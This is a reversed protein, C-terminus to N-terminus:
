ESNFTWSLASATLGADAFVVVVHRGPELPEEPRGRLQAAFPTEDPEASDFPQADLWMLVDNLEGGAGVDAAVPPRPGVEALPEPKLGTVIVGGLEIKWEGEEQMFAVAYAFYESRDGVERDGAIAGVGFDPLRKSLTVEATPAISGLGEQFELASQNRFETLSPGISAQTASTLMNWMTRADGDAAAQTFELLLRGFQPDDRGFQEPSPGGSAGGAGGSGTTTPAAQDDGDGDGGSCGAALVLALILLLALPRRM